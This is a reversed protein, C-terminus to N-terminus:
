PAHALLSREVLVEDSMRPTFSSYTSSQTAYTLTNPHSPLVSYSEFRRAHQGEIDRVRKGLFENLVYTRYQAEDSTQPDIDTIGGDHPTKIRVGDAAYVCFKIGGIIQGSQNDVAKLYLIENGSPLKSSDEIAKRHTEVAEQQTPYVVDHLPNEVFALFQCEVFEELDEVHLPAITWSAM